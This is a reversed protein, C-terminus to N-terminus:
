RNVFALSPRDEFEEKKSTEMRILRPTLVTIRAVDYEVVADSSAVPNYDLLEYKTPGPAAVTAAGISILSLAAYVGRRLLM